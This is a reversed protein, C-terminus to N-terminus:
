ILMKAYDMLTEDTFSDLYNETTKLDSHGLMESIVGIPAGARKLVTAFSHRAVYTTLTLELELAKGIRKMYKNITQTKQRIIKREDEASMNESLIPFLYTEPNSKENGWRQIIELQQNQLMVAILKPKSRTTKATKARQFILKDGQINKQKLLAIDKMNMGNSLYSFYWLDRAFHENTGDKVEYAIIREVDVKTLAKKINNGTPITYQGRGFPKKDITIIGESIAKNYLTRVNRLYIGITTPSSKNGLMCTEYRKLFDVNIEQFTLKERNSFAKLSSLSAQYSSATGLRKEAKLQEIAKVFYSFIDNEIVQKQFTAKGEFELKFLEFSFPSLTEIIAKAKAEIANIKIQIEKLEGRAKGTEVKEFDAKSLSMESLTFLKAERLYTVRLALTYTGDKRQFRHNLVIKTTISHKMTNQQYTLSVLM